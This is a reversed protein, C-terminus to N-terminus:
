LSKKVECVEASGFIEKEQHHDSRMWCGCAILSPSLLCGSYCEHHSTVLSFLKNICMQNEVFLRLIM